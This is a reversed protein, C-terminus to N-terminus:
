SVMWSSQPSCDKNHKSEEKVLREGCDGEFCVVSVSFEDGSV